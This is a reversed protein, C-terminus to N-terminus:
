STWLSEWRQLDDVSLARSNYLRPPSPYRPPPPMFHPPPPPMPTLGLKQLIKNLLFFFFLVKMIKRQKRDMKELKKLTKLDPIIIPAEVPVANLSLRSGGLRRDMFVGQPPPQPHSYTSRQSFDVYPEIYAAPSPRKGYPLTHPPYSSSSRNGMGRQGSSDVGDSAGGGLGGGTSLTPPQIAM